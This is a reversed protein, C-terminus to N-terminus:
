TTADCDVTEPETSNKVRVRLRERVGILHDILGQLATDIESFEDSTIDRKGPSSESVANGVATWFKATLFSLIASDSVLQDLLTETAKQLDNEAGPRAVFICKFGLPSVLQSIAQEFEMVAANGGLIPVRVIKWAASKEREVVTTKDDARWPKGIADLFPQFVAIADGSLEAIHVLMDAPLHGNGSTWQAWTDKAVSVGHNNLLHDRIRRESLQALGGIVGSAIQGYNKLAKIPM